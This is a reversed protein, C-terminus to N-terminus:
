PRARSRLCQTHRSNDIKIGTDRGDETFLRQQGSVVHFRNDQHSFFSVGEHLIFNRAQYLNSNAEISVQGRQCVSFTLKSFYPHGRLRASAECRDPRLHTIFAGEDNFVHVVGNDDTHTPRNAVVVLQYNSRHIKNWVEISLEELCTLTASYIKNVDISVESHTPIANGGIVPGSYSSGNGAFSAPSFFYLILLASKLQHTVLKM